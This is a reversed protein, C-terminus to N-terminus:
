QPNGTLHLGFTGIAAILPIQLGDSRLTKMAALM